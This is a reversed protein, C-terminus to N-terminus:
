NEEKNPEAGNLLGIYAAVAAIHSCHPDRVNRGHPCTCVLQDPQTGFARCVYVRFIQKGTASTVSWTLRDPQPTVRAAADAAKKLTAKSFRGPDIGAIHLDEVQIPTGESRHQEVLEHLDNTFISWASWHPHKEALETGPTARIRLLTVDAM